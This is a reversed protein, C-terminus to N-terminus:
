QTPPDCKIEKFITEQISRVSLEDLVKILKSIKVARNQTGERLTRAAGQYTEVASPCTQTPPM